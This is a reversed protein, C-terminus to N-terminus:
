MWFLRPHLSASSQQTHVQPLTPLRVFAVRWRQHMISLDQHLHRVLTVGGSNLVRLPQGSACGNLAIGSPSRAAVTASDADALKYKTDAADLYVMQGATITAGATGNSVSAGERALVNTATLVLDAM